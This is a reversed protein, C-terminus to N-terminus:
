LDIHLPGQPHELRAWVPVTNLLCVRGSRRDSGSTSYEFAYIRRVLLSHRRRELGLDALAVSGDLRQLDLDRCLRSSVRDVIERGRIVWTWLVYTLGCLLLASLEM